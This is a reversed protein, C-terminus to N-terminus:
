GFIQTTMDLMTLIDTVLVKVTTTLLPTARNSSMLRRKSGNGDDIHLM